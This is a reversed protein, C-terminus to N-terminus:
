RLLTVLNVNEMWYLNSDTAVDAEHMADILEAKSNFIRIAFVTDGDTLVALYKGDEIHLCKTTM